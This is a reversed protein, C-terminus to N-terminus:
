ATQSVAGTSVATRSSPKKLWTLANGEVSLQKMSLVRFTDPLGAVNANLPVLVVNKVATNQKGPAIVPSNELAKIAAAPVTTGFSVLVHFATKVNMKRKELCFIRCDRAPSVGPGITWGECAPFYRKIEKMAFRDM